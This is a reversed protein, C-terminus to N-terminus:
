FAIASRVYRSLIKDARIWGGSGFYCNWAYDPHDYDYETSSWYGDVLMNTGGVGNFGDRLANYGTAADIMKQWQGASPLFWASTGTPHTGGNYERAATAATHTHSGHGVLADTNAIGAMDTKAEVDYGFQSGSGLCHAADQSCWTAKSGGNADTLALALGHNYTTSTEADNGVYTILALATTGATTAATANDYINGDAGLVKGVEAKKLAFGTTTYTFGADLTVSAAAKRYVGTATEATICIPQANIVDGYMAVYINDLSTPTVTYTRYFPDSNPFEIVLKTIASTIDSSGDKFSFKWICMAPVMTVAPLTVDSGSVTMTGTGSIAAFDTNIEDLTGTQDNCPDKPAHFFNYPYGFSINSDGEKPDTLTVRITAAKTSPDVATVTAMAEEPTDSTNTYLVWIEDDKEWEASISGDGNDTMTSRTGGNRPSLTTTVTFTRSQAPQEAATPVDENSCASWTAATLTLAAMWILNKLTKM